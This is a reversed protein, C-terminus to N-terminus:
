LIIYGSWADLFRRVDVQAARARRTRVAQPAATAAAAAAAPRPGSATHLADKVRRVEHRLSRHLRLLRRLELNPPREGSSLQGSLDLLM